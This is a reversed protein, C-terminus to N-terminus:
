KDDAPPLPEEFEECLFGTVELNELIPFKEAIRNCIEGYNPEKDADKCIFDLDRRGFGAGAGTNQLGLTEIFELIEDEIKRANDAFDFGVCVTYDAM